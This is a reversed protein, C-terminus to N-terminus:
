EQRRRRRRRRRRLGRLGPTGPPVAWVDRGRGRRASSAGGVGAREWCEGGWGCCAACAGGVARAPPGVGGGGAGGRGARQSGDRWCSAGTAGGVRGVRVGSTEGGSAGGVCETVGAAHAPPGGGAQTLGPRPKEAHKPGRSRLRASDLPDADRRGGNGNGCETGLFHAALGRPRWSEKKRWGAIASGRMRTRGPGLDGYARRPQSSPERHQCKKM